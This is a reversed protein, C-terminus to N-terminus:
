PLPRVVRQKTRPVAFADPDTTLGPPGNLRLYGKTSPTAVSPPKLDEDPEWDFWGGSGTFSQGVLLVGFGPIHVGLPDASVTSGYPAVLLRDDVEFCENANVSLTGSVIATFAIHAEEEDQVLLTPLQEGDTGAPM